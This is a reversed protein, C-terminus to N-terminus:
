KAGGKEDLAVEILSLAVEVNIILPLQKPNCGHKLLSLYLRASTLKDAIEERM